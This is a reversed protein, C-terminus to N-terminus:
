KSMHNEECFSSRFFFVCPFYKWLRQCFLKRRYSILHSTCVISDKTDKHGSSCRWMLDINSKVIIYWKEYISHISIQNHYFLPFSMLSWNNSTHIDNPKQCLISIWHKIQIDFKSKWCCETFIDMFRISNNTFSKRHFIECSIKEM